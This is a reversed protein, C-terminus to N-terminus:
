AHLYPELNAIILRFYILADRRTSFSARHPILEMCLVAAARPTPHEYSGATNKFHGHTTHCASECRCAEDFTMRRIGKTPAAGFTQDYKASMRALYPLMLIPILTPTSLTPLTSSRLLGRPYYSHVEPLYNTPRGQMVARITHMITCQQHCRCTKRAVEQAERPLRGPNANDKSKPWAAERSAQQRLQRSHSCSSLKQPPQSTTRAIAEQSTRM